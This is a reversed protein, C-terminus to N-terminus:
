YNNLLNKANEYDKKYVFIEAILQYKSSAYRSVKTWKENIKIKYDIGNGKLTQQIEGELDEKTLDREEELCKNIISKDIPYETIKVLEDEM